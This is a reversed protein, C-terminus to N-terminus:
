EDGDRNHRASPSPTPPGVGSNLCVAVAGRRRLLPSGAGLPWGRAAGFVCGVIWGGRVTSPPKRGVSIGCRWGGSWSGVDALWTWSRPEEAVGDARGPKGPEPGRAM